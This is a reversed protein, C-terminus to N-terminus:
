QQTQMSQLFDALVAPDVAVPLNMGAVGPL